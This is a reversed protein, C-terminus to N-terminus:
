SGTVHRFAVRDRREFRRRTLWWLVEFAKGAEAFALRRQEPSLGHAAWPVVQAFYGIGHKKKFHEEDIRHWDEPTMLKQMLAIAETEEHRLHRGLSERTAALRVALAARADEDPVAAVAAFGAACSELLPDIEAHEAEMAELVARGEADAREMLFPWLGTDEGTHHEHLVEAFLAWRRALAHWTERDTVPTVQAARAFATLDRRFAHHMVYMVHMAIPGEPTAAQGPLHIQTPWDTHHTTSM